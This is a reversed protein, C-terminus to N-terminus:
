KSFLIPFTNGPNFPSTIHPLFFFAERLNECISYLASKRLYFVACIKASLDAHIQSFYCEM